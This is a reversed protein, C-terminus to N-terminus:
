WGFFACPPAVPLQLQSRHKAMELDAHFRGPPQEQLSETSALPAIPFIWSREGLALFAGGLLEYCRGERRKGLDKEEAPRMYKTDLM